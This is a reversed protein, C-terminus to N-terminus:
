QRCYIFMSSTRPKSTRRTRCVCEVSVATQGGRERGNRFVPGVIHPHLVSSSLSVFAVHERQGGSQQTNRQTALRRGIIVGSWGGRAPKRPAIKSTGRGGSNCLLVPQNFAKREGCLLLPHVSCLHPVLVMQADVVNQEGQDTRM